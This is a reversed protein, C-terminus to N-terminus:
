DIVGDKVIKLSLRAEEYGAMTFATWLLKADKNKIIKTVPKGDLLLITPMDCIDM